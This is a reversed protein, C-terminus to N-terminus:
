GIARLRAGQRNKCGAQWVPLRPNGEIRRGLRALMNGAFDSKGNPCGPIGQATRRLLEIHEQTPGGGGDGYGYTLIAEDSLNKQQYRNYTGAPLVYTLVTACVIMILILVFVHPARIQKKEKM